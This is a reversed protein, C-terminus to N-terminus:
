SFRDVVAEAVIDLLRRQSRPLEAPL